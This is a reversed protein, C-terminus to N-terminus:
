SLGTLRYLVMDGESLVVEFGPAGDAVTDIGTWLYEYEMTFLYPSKLTQYDGADLLLVYEAGTSKVAQMVQPDSMYCSLGERVLVSEPTEDTGGYGRLYRYYMNMDQTFVSFTSGDNPQNIILAGEPVVEKVKEMFAQETTSYVQETDVDNQSAVLSQITGFASNSLPMFNVLAFVACVCAAAAGMQRAPKVSVRAFAKQVLATVQALGLAALPIGAIALTAATRHHDTYWFGALVHKLLGEGNINVWFILAALAYSVVLWRQDKFKVLAFGAGVLLVVALLYQAPEKYAVTLIYIAGELKGSYSPWWDALPGNQMFSTNYLAWWIACIALACLVYGAVAAARGKAKSSIKGKVARAVTICLFPALLVVAAFLANPHSLAVAVFAVAFVFIRSALSTKDSAKSLLCVFCTMVPLLLANGLINPYLPGFTLFDWPAAAFALAAVCGCVAVRTNGPFVAKLFLLVGLPFVVAVIAANVANIAVPISVGLASVVMACLCHWATPYFSGGVSWYFPVGEPNTAGEPYLGSNFVSYAGGEVFNRITGMHFVNDFAQLFSEPTDLSMVFFICVLVIGILAYAGALAANKAGDVDQIGLSFSRWPLKSGRGLGYSVGLAVAAIALSPLFLTAWTTFIGVKSFVLALVNYAVISFLPALVLSVLRKLRLARLVVYGPAYLMVVATAMALFFSLWM